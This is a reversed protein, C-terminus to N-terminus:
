PRYVEFLAYKEGTERGYGVNPRAEGDMFFPTIADAANRTCRQLLGSPIVSFPEGDFAGIAPVLPLRFTGCLM